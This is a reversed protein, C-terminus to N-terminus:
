GAKRLPYRSDTHFIDINLNTTLVKTHLADIRKKLDLFFNLKNPDYMGIYIKSLYRNSAIAKLLHEDNEFSIGYTVLTGSIDRFHEHCKRLYDDQQIFLEKKLGDGEAVFLPIDGNSIRERILTSLDKVKYDKARAHEKILTGLRSPRYLHLAGHLFYLGRNPFTHFHIDNSPGVPRRFGDDLTETLIPDSMKIWYLILDYNTTFVNEFKNLVAVWEPFRDSVAQWSPHNAQIAKVLAERVTAM